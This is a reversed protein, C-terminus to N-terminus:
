ETFTVELIEGHSNIVGEWRIGETLNEVRVQYSSVLPAAPAFEVEVRWPDSSYVRQATDNETQSIDEDVWDAPTLINYRELLYELVADRALAENLITSAPVVKGEIITGDSSLTGEWFFGNALNAVERITFLSPGPASTEASIVITVSESLYRFTSSGM